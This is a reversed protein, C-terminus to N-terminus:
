LHMEADEFLDTSLKPFRFGQMDSERIPAGSMASKKAMDSMSCMYAPGVLCDCFLTRRVQLKVM